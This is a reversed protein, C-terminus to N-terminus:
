LCIRGGTSRRQAGMEWVLMVWSAEQRPRSVELYRMELEDALPGDSASIWGRSDWIGSSIRKLSVAGRERRQRWQM